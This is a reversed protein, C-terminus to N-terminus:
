GEENLRDWARRVLLAPDEHITEAVLVVIPSPIIRKGNLYRNLTAREVDIRQAVETATFGRAVIAGKLELGLLASFRTGRSNDV